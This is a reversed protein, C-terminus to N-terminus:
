HSLFGGLFNQLGSFTSRPPEPNLPSSFCPLLSCLCLYVQHDGALDGQQLFIINLNCVGLSVLFMLHFSIIDSQSLRLLILLKMMNATWAGLCLSRDLSWLMSWSNLCWLIFQRLEVANVPQIFEVSNVWHRLEVAYVPQRHEFTDVLQRHKVTYILQRHGLALM